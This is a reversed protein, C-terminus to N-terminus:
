VEQKLSEIEAQKKKEEEETPAGAPPAAQASGSANASNADQTAPASTNDAPAAASSPTSPAPKLTDDTIVTAPKAAAKKQARASRAAEAVSGTSSDQAFLPLSLAATALGMLAVTRLLARQQM